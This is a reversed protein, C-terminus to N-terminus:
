VAPNPNDLEAIQQAILEKQEVLMQKHTKVIAKHAKEMSPKRACQVCALLFDARKYGYERMNGILLDYEEPYYYKTMPKAPRRRLGYDPVPDYGGACFPNCRLIRAVTLIM